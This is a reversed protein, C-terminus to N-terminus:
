SAEKMKQRRLYLTLAGNAVIGLAVTPAGVYALSQGLTLKHSLAQAVQPCFYYALCAGAVLLAAVAVVGAVKAARKQGESFRPERIGKVVPAEAKRKSKQWVYLGVGLGTMLGAIPLGIMYFGQGITLHQAALPTIAHANM